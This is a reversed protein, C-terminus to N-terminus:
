TKKRRRGDSRKRQRWAAMYQRRQERAEPTDWNLRELDRQLERRRELANSSKRIKLEYGYGRHTVISLPLGFRSLAVRLQLVRQRVTDNDAQWMIPRDNMEEYLDELTAPGKLLRRFVVLQKPALHGVAGRYSVHGSREDVQVEDMRGALSPLEADALYQLACIGTM